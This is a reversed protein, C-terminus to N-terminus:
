APCVAALPVSPTRGPLWDMALSQCMVSRALWQEAFWLWWWYSAAGSVLLWESATKPWFNIVSQDFDAPGL